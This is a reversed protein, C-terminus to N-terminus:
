MQKPYVRIRTLKLVDLQVHMQFVEFGFFTNALFIKEKIGVIRSSSDYAAIVLQLNQQLKTGSKPHLEGRVELWMGDDNEWMAGHLSELRVGVRDEFAELREVLRTVDEVAM